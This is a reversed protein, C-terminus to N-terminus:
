FSPTDSVGLKQSKGWRGPPGQVRVPTLSPFRGSRQGGVEQGPRPGPGTASGVLFGKCVLFSDHQAKKRTPESFPNKEPRFFGVGPTPGPGLGLSQSSHGPAVPGPRHRGCPRPGCTRAQAERLTPWRARARGPPRGSAFFIAGWSFRERCDKPHTRLVSKRPDFFHECGPDPGPGPGPESV